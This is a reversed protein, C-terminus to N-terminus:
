DSHVSFEKQVSKRFFVTSTSVADNERSIVDQNQFSIDKLANTRERCRKQDGVNKPTIIFSYDDPKLQKFHETIEEKPISIFNKSDVQDNKSFTMNNVSSKNLNYSYKSDNVKNRSSNLNDSRPNDIMEQDEMDLFSQINNNFSNANANVRNERETNSKEIQDGNPRFNEPSGNEKFIDEEYQINIRASSLRDQIDDDHNKKSPDLKKENTDSDELIEKNQIPSSM